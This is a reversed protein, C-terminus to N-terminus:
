WQPFRDNSLVSAGTNQRYMIKSESRTVNRVAHLNYEEMNALVSAITM